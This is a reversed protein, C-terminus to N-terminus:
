NDLGNLKRCIATVNGRDCYDNFIINIRRGHENQIRLTNIVGVLERNPLISFSWIDPIIPTMTWSLLFLDCQVSPYESCFGTFNNFKDIQNNKMTSYDGTNSYEDYVTFHGRNASGSNHDRYLFIGPEPLNNARAEDCLILVRGQQGIFESIPTDALRRDVPSALYLWDSLKDRINQVMSQYQADNINNFHSFKLLILERGDTQMFKRVDDLVELLPPGSIIGHYIHFEIRGDVTTAVPRLDFYRIGERLQDYITLSQTRGFVHYGGLYMAADHSGPLTLDKLTKNRITEYGHTMWHEKLEVSGLNWSENSIRKKWVPNYDSNRHLWATGNTCLYSHYTDNVIMVASEMVWDDGFFSTKQLISFESLNGIIAEDSLFFNGLETFTRTVTEGLAIGDVRFVEHQNVNFVLTNSTGGFRISRAKVQITIKDVPTTRDVAGLIADRTNSLALGVDVTEIYWRQSDPRMPDYYAIRPPSAADDYTALSYGPLDLLLLGEGTLLWNQTAARELTPRDIIIHGANVDLVLDNVQSVIRGQHYTWLQRVDHEARPQLEVLAGAISGPRVAFVSDGVASRIYFASNQQVDEFQNEELNPEVAYAIMYWRTAGTASVSVSSENGAVHHLKHGTDAIIEGDSSITWQQSAINQNKVAGITVFSVHDLNQLVRGNARSVIMGNRYTWLQEYLPARISTLLPANERFDGGLSLVRGDDASCIWFYQDFDNDYKANAYSFHQFIPLGNTERLYDMTTIAGRTDMTFFRDATGLLFLKFSDKSEMPSFRAADKAHITWRLCNGKYALSDSQASIFYGDESLMFGADPNALDAPTALYECKQNKIQITNEHRNPYYLVEGWERKGIKQHLSFSLTVTRIESFMNLRESLRCNFIVSYVLAFFNSPWWQRWSVCLM